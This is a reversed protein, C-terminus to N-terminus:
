RLIRKKSLYATYTIISLLLVFGLVIPAGGGV